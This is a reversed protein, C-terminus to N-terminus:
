CWSAQETTQNLLEEVNAEIVRYGVNGYLIQRGQNFILTPSGCVRYQEKLQFDKDLAAFAEGSDIIRQLKDIPLHLQEAVAMHSQCQSIDVLDEFFAVRLRSVAKEFLSHKNDTQPPCFDDKDELLQIAKLFLHCSTSTMPANKLWIDPHVNIHEFRDAINLVHHNYGKVGGKLGWNKEIKAEAAGFVQIFHHHWQIQKGFKRKLEDLRIQSVYAWICLIDSFYITSVQNSFKM